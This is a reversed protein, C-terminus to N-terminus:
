PLLGLEVELSFFFNYWKLGFGQTVDRWLREIRINHVVMTKRWTNHLRSPTGHVQIADLFLSLVTQARNNDNAQIATVLRSFGDVFAHIVVQRIRARPIHHGLFRLHGTIMRRGFAPFIELIHRLIMDLEHDTLDSMAATSSRYFRVHEGSDPDEYIIYVPPCP